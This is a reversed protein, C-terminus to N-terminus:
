QISIAIVMTSMSPRPIESKSYLYSSSAPPDRLIIPRCISVAELGKGMGSM